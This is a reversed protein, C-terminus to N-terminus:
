RQETQNTMIVNGVTKVTGKGINFLELGTQGLWGAYISFSSIASKPSSFDMQGSNIMATMSFYVLLLVFILLILHWTKKYHEFKLFALIVLVLVIGIIWWMINKIFALIFVKKYHM